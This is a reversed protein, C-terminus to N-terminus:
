IEKILEKVQQMLFTSRDFDKEDIGEFTDEYRTVKRGLELKEACHQANTKNLYIPRIKYDKQEKLWEIPKLFLPEQLKGNGDAYIGHAIIAVYKKGDAEKNIIELREKLNKIMKDVTCDEGKEKKLRSEVKEQLSSTSLTYVDVGDVVCHYLPAKNIKKIPESTPQNDFFNKISTTKGSSNGGCILVIGNM